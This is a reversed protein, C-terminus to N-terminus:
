SGKCLLAEISAFGYQDNENVLTIAMGKSEARATRGIRHIYDEGENPVDYNVVLDIDEIDIGRSLVDTAVLISLKKSRFENLVRTRTAQDLDSHIDEVALNASKLERSLQKAGIKTSCFILM